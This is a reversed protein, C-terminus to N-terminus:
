LFTPHRRKYCNRIFKIESGGEEGPTKEFDDSNFDPFFTDGDPITLDVETIYMADVLPLAEKYISYGGAFFINGGTKLGFEGNALQLAEKVSKATTLNEGEFSKSNSVVITKRNPLPRGIEEYTKRGMIVINGTTLEKFQKKEGEIQWPIHGDKGIVNNKSRAVILAIM